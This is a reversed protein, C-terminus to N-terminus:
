RTHWAPSSSESRSVWAATFSDLWGTKQCAFRTTRLRQNAWETRTHVHVCLPGEMWRAGVCVCAISLTTATGGRNPQCRKQCKSYCLCRCASIDLHTKASLIRVEVGTFQIGVRGPNRRWYRPLLRLCASGSPWGCLRGGVIGNGLYASYENTNVCQRQFAGM